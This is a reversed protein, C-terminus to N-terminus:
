GPQGTAVTIVLKQQNQETRRAGSYRPTCRPTTRASSREYVTREPVQGEAEVEVEAEAEAETRSGNRKEKEFSSGGVGRGEDKARRVVRLM